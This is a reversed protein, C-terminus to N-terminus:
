GDVTDQDQHHLDYSDWLLTPIGGTTCISKDREDTITSSLINGIPSLAPDELNSRSHHIQDGSQSVRTQTGSLIEMQTPDDRDQPWPSHNVNPCTETPDHSQPDRKQPTQNQTITVTYSNELNDVPLSLWPNNPLAASRKVTIEFNLSDVTVKPIIHISARSSNRVSGFDFVEAPDEADSVNSINDEHTQPQSFAPRVSDRTGALRSLGEVGERRGWVELPSSGAGDFGSDFSSLSPPKGNASMMGSVVTSPSTEPVCAEEKSRECKLNSESPSDQVGKATRDAAGNGSTQSVNSSRLLEYQWQLALQLHGVAVPGSSM